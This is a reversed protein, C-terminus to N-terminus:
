FAFYVFQIGPGQSFIALLYAAACIGAALLLDFGLTKV